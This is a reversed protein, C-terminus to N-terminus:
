SGMARKGTRLSAPSGNEITEQPLLYFHFDFHPSVFSGNPGRPAGETNWDIEVYQFPQSAGAPGEIDSYQYRYIHQCPGVPLAASQGEGTFEIAPIKVMVTSAVEGDNTQFAPYTGAEGYANMQELWTSTDGDACAGDVPAAPTGHAGHGAVVMPMLPLSTLAILM